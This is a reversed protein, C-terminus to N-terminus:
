LLYRSFCTFLILYETYRNVSTGTGRLVMSSSFMLLTGTPLVLGIRNIISEKFTLNGPVSVAALALHRVLLDYLTKITPWIYNPTQVAGDDEVRLVIFEVFWLPDRYTCTITEMYVAVQGGKQQKVTVM